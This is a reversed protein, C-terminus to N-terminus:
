NLYYEAGCYPCTVVGKGALKLEGGCFKCRELERLGAADQSYLIGEDWNIFGSFVGMGVLAHIKAQVSQQDEGLEIVLDSVPLQGRSKVMDLIKRLEAREADQAAERSSRVLLFVGGGFLPLLIILGVVGGILAGGLRLDGEAYVGALYAGGGILLVISGGILLLGLLRGSRL